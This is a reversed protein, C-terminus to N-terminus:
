GAVAISDILLDPVRVASYQDNYESSVAVIKRLMDFFNSSLTIRDVPQIMHGNEYLFGQAGISFEGSIASCGSAGELKDILLIRGSGLLEARTKGGPAVVLNHFATGAKSGVSRVGNGTPARNEVAASELNYLYSALRGSEIVQLNQTPVGESDLARSGPLSTDLADSRLNLIEAAVQHGLRGALRSQGKQVLEAFFASQYLSFLRGSVRNSFLVTYNGSPV